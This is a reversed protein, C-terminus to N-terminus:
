KKRMRKELRWRKSAALMIYYDTPWCGGFRRYLLSKLWRPIKATGPWADRPIRKYIIM